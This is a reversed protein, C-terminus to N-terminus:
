DVCPSYTAWIACFSSNCRCVIWVNTDEKQSITSYIFCWYCLFICKVIRNEHMAVFHSPFATYFQMTKPTITISRNFLLHCACHMFEVIWEIGEIELKEKWENTTKAVQKKTQIKFANCVQVFEKSIKEDYWGREIRRGIKRM